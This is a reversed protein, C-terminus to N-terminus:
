ALRLGQEFQRGVGFTAARVLFVTDLPLKWLDFWIWCADEAALGEDGYLLQKCFPDHRRVLRTSYCFPQSTGAYRFGSRDDLARAAEGPTLTSSTMEMFFWRECFAFQMFRPQRRDPRDDEPDAGGVLEPAGTSDLRGGVAVLAPVLARAAKVRESKCAGAGPVEEDMVAFADGVRERCVRRAMLSLYDEVQRIRRQREQNAGLM